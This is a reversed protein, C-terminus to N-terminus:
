QGRLRDIRQQYLSADIPGGSESHEMQNYLIIAKGYYEIAKENNGNREYLEALYATSEFTPNLAVSQESAKIAAPTDTSAVVTAKSHYLAAKQAPSNTKEIAADFVEMAITTNGNAVYTSAAAVTENLAVEDVNGREQLPTVPTAGKDAGFLPERFIYAAVGAIILLLVAAAVIVILRKKIRPKKLTFEPRNFPHNSDSM